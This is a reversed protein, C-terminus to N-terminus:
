HYFSQGMTGIKHSCPDQQNQLVLKLPEIDKPHYFSSSSIPSGSRKQKELAWARFRELNLVPSISERCLDAERIERMKLDVTLQLGLEVHVEADRSNKEDGSEGQGAVLIDEGELGDTRGLGVAVALLDL